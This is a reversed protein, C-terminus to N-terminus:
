HRYSNKYEEDFNRVINKNHKKIFAYSFDIASIDYRNLVDLYYMFVDVLEEIFKDRLEIDNVIEQEGRKKIISIVESVEEIMWLLSERAAEPKMPSWTDKHEKWLERQYKLMESIKIEEHMTNHKELSSIHPKTQYNKRNM